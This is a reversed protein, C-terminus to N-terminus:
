YIEGKNAYENSSKKTKYAPRKRQMCFFILILIALLLVLAIAGLAILLGLSLGSEQDTAPEGKPTRMTSARFNAITISTACNDRLEVDM